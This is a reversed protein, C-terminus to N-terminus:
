KLSLPHALQNMAGRPSVRGICIDVGQERVTTNLNNYKRIMLVGLKASHKPCQVYFGTQLQAKVLIVTRGEPYNKIRQTRKAM